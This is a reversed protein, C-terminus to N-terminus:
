PCVEVKAVGMAPAYSRGAAAAVVAVPQGAGRLGDTVTLTCSGCAGGAPELGLALVPHDEGAAWVADAQVGTVLAAVVGGEVRDVRAFGADSRGPPDDRVDAAHTGAVTASAVTCGEARVGFSLAQVDLGSARLVVSAGRDGDAVVDLRLGDGCAAEPLTVAGCAGAELPFLQTTGAFLHYWVGTGDGVDLNGDTLTDAAAACAPAPGRRFLHEQVAAGDAIDVAGDGNVDGIM